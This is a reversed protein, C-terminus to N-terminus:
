MTMGMRMQRMTARAGRERFGFFGVQNLRLLMNLRSATNQIRGACGTNPQPENGRGDPPSGEHAKTDKTTM